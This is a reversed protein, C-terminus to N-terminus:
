MVHPCPSKKKLGTKACAATVRDSARLRPQPVIVIFAGGVWGFAGNDVSVCEHAEGVTQVGFTKEKREWGKCIARTMFRVSEACDSMELKEQGPWLKGM